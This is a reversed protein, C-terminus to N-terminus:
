RNRSRAATTFAEGAYAVAAEMQKSAADLRFIPATIPTSPM